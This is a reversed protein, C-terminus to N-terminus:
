IDFFFNICKNHISILTRIRKLKLAERFKELKKFVRVGGGGVESQFYNLFRSYDALM